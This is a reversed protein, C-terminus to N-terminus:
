FSQSSHRQSISLILHFNKQRAIRKTFIYENLARSLVSRFRHHNLIVATSWFCEPRQHKTCIEVFVPPLSLNNCLPRFFDTPIHTERIFFSGSDSSKPVRRDGLPNSYYCTLLVSLINDESSASSAPAAFLLRRRRYWSMFSQFLDLCLSPCAPAHSLFPPTIYKDVQYFICMQICKLLPLSFWHAVIHIIINNKKLKIQFMVIYLWCIM